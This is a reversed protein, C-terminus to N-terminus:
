VLFCTAAAGARMQLRRFSAVAFHHSSHPAAAAAPEVSCGVAERDAPSLQLQELADLVQGNHLVEEKPLLPFLGERWLDGLAYICVTAISYANLAPIM